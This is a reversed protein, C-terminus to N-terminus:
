YYKRLSRSSSQKSAQIFPKKLPDVARVAKIIQGYHPSEAVQTGCDMFDDHGFPFERMEKKLIEILDIIKGEATVYGKQRPFMIEGSEIKPLMIGLIRDEKAGYGRPNFHHLKFSVGLEAKKREIFQSDSQAGVQEWSVWGAKYQEQLDFMKNVAEPATIRDYVGDLFYRQGMRDQGMVWMATFDPSHGRSEKKTHAPDVHITIKLKDLSPINDCYCIKETDFRQDEPPVPDLMMQCSFVYRGQTKKKDELQEYTHMYPDGNEDVCPITEVKYIGKEKMYCYPDGYGYFTGIVWKESPVGEISVGLNDTLEFGEITERIMHPTKVSDKTVVDDACIFNFHMGIPQGEVVGGAMLTPERRNTERKVILGSEQSWKPAENPNAYLVHDFWNKLQESKEFTYKISNLHDMARGKKYSFICTALDPYKLINRINAGYNFITSKFGERFVMIMWKDLGTPSAIRKDAVKCRQITFPHDMISSPLGCGHKLLFYMDTFCLEQFFIKRDAEYMQDAKYWVAEYDRKYQPIKLSLM